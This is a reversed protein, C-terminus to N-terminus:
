HYKQNMETASQNEIDREGSSSAQSRVVVIKSEQDIMGAPLISAMDQQQQHSFVDPISTSTNSAFPGGPMQWITPDIDIALGQAGGAALSSYNKSNGSVAVGGVIEELGM